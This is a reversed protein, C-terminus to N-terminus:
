GDSTYDDWAHKKKAKKVPPPAAALGLHRAVENRSRFKKGKPSYWYADLQGASNGTMRQEIKVTWGELLAAGNGGCDTLFASLAATEGEPTRHNVSGYAASRRM